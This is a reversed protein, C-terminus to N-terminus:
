QVRIPPLEAPSLDDIAPGTLMKGTCDFRSGHCPCDWTKELKNWQVVCGLHTCIASRAHLEGDASRYVAVKSMGQRMVAGSGPAIEEVSKVDGPTLLDSYQLAVNLNEKAFEGAARLSKRDPDYLKEWPNSRGLILDSILIGAMAGHTLGMGSDGTAVYVNPHNTPVRGIYAIGDVPENVQGSWRNIVNGAAPFRERMWKELVNFRAPEDGVEQGTKHDEGGVLLVAKADNANIAHLRVYHYPGVGRRQRPDGTLEANDAQGALRGARGHHAHRV